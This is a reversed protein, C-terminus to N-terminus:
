SCTPPQPKFFYAEVIEIIRDRDHQYDWEHLIKIIKKASKMRKKRREKLEVSEPRM